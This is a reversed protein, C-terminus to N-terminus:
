EEEMIDIIKNIAKKNIENTNEDILSPILIMNEDENIIKSNDGIVNIVFVYKANVDKAKKRIHEYDLDYGSEKWLKFDFYIGKKVFDFKEFKSLEEIDDLEIGYRKLLLKGCEEGLAGKYVNNFLCPILIYNANEFSTKYGNKIFHDKLYKDKMLINLRCSIESVEVYKEKKEYSINVNFLNNDCSEFEYYYKNNEKLLLYRNIDINETNDKNNFCPFLLVNKRLEKWEEKEIENKFSKSQQSLKIAYYYNNNCAKITENDEIKNKELTNEKQYNILSIFEKNLPINDVVGLDYKEYIESDIYIFTDRTKNRVRCVRGVGQILYSVACNEISKYKKNDIQYHKQIKEKKFFANKILKQKDDYSIDGFEEMACIQYLYMMFQKNEIEEDFKFYTLINTPIELYLCDIDCKEGNFEYQLNLGAGVSQYTSILIVKNGQKILNSYEEVKSEYNKSGIYVDNIKNKLEPHEFVIYRKYKEIVSKKFIKVDEEDSFSRNLLILLARQDPKNFIFDNISLLIKIMKIEYYNEKEDYNKLTNKIEGILDIAYESDEFIENLKELKHDPIVEIITNSSNSSIFYNVEKDVNKIDEKAFNYYNKGLKNRIYNLDFNGLVTEMQGTASMGIVKMKNCLSVMYSEPTNKLQTMGIITNLSVDNEDIFDFFRFGREYFSACEQSKKKKNVNLLYDNLISNYLFDFSKDEKSIRFAQLVSGIADSIEYWIIKNNKKYLNSTIIACGKIFYVISGYVNNIVENIEYSNEIKKDIINNLGEKEKTLVFLNDYLINISSKENFISPHKKNKVNNKFLYKLKFKNYIENFLKKNKEYIEFMKKDNSTSEFLSAPIGENLGNRIQCFLDIIKINLNKCSDDIINKLLVEKFKDVEDIFVVANNFLSSSLFDMSKIGLQSNGSIFKDFTMFIIKKNMVKIFPYMKTIWKEKEIIENLEINKSYKSLLYENLKKRFDYEKENKDDLDYSDNTIIKQIKQYDKKISQDIESIDNNNKFYEELSDLNSKILITKDDFLTDDNLAKKFEDYTKQLINKRYTIYIIKENSLIHDVMFKYSITTKGFATPCNLILLGNKNEKIFKDIIKRV